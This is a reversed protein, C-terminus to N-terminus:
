PSHQVLPTSPMSPLPERGVLLKLEQYEPLAIARRLHKRGASSDNGAWKLKWSMDGDIRRGDVTFRGSRGPALDVQIVAREWPPDGALSIVAKFDAARLRRLMNPVSNPDAIIEPPLRDRSKRIKPDPDFDKPSPRRLLSPSAVDCQWLDELTPPQNSKLAWFASKMIWSRKSAALEIRDALEDFQRHLQTRRSGEGSAVARALRELRYEFDERVVPDRGPLREGMARDRREAFVDDRSSVVDISAVDDPNIPGEVKGILDGKGAKTGIFHMGAQTMYSGTITEGSKLTVKIFDQDLRGTFM